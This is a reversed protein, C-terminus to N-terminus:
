ANFFGTPIGSTKGTERGPVSYHLFGTIGL